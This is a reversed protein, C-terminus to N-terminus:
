ENESEKRKRYEATYLEGSIPRNLYIRSGSSNGPLMRIAEDVNFVGEEWWANEDNDTYFIRVGIPEEDTTVSQTPPPVPIAKVVPAPPPMKFEKKKVCEVTPPRSLQTKEPATQGLYEDDASFRHGTQTIGVIEFRVCKRNRYLQVLKDVSEFIKLPIRKQKSPDVTRGM